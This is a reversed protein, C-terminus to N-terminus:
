AWLRNQMGSTQQTPNKMISHMLSRSGYIFLQQRARTVATYLLEKTLIMQWQKNNESSLIPLVLIVKDFESGQSKHVTISYAPSYETLLSTSIRRYGDSSAFYVSQEDRFYIGIEGNFVQLNYDNATVMIIRGNYWEASIPLRLKQEIVANFSEIGWPGKNFATLIGLRSVNSFASDADMEDNKKYYDAAYRKLMDHITEVSDYETFVVDEYKGSMVEDAKTLDEDRIAQSLAAIGSDSGFRFSKKLIVIADSVFHPTKDNGEETVGCYKLMKIGQDTRGFRDVGGCLDGFFAGAEVSSLQNKDGVCVLRSGRKLAKLLKAMLPIDVMSTEDVIVVNYPLRNNENYYFELEGKKYGLLRHITYAADPFVHAVDDAYKEKFSVIAQMLRSAAKGTPACIAIECNGDHRLLQYVIAAIVTTKGTGPGGSIICYPKMLATLQAAIQEKSFQMGKNHLHALAENCQVAKCEDDIFAERNATFFDSIIKEYNWNRYVYCNGYQYVLPKVQNEANAFANCELLLNGMDDASPFTIDPVNRIDQYLVDSLKKHAVTGLSLCSHGHANMYSTCFIVAKTTEDNCSYKSCIFETFHYHISTYYDLTVNM